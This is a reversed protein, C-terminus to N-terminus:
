TQLINLFTQTNSVVVLHSSGELDRNLLFSKLQFLFFSNFFVLVSFIYCKGEILFSNGKFEQELVRLVVYLCPQGTSWSYCERVHLALKVAM